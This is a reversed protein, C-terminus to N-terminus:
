IRIELQGLDYLSAFFLDKKLLFSITKVGGVTRLSNNSVWVGKPKNTKHWFRSEKRELISKM